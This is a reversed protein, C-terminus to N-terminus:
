LNKFLIRMLDIRGFVPLTIAKGKVAHIIGLVFSVPFVALFLIFPIFLLLTILDPFWNLIPPVFIAYLLGFVTNMLGQCCHFMAFKSKRSTILPIIVLPGLYALVANNANSSIDSSDFNYTVDETKCIRKIFEVFSKIGKPLNRQGQSTSQSQPPVNAYRSDKTGCSPCTDVGDPIFTRCNSCYPM